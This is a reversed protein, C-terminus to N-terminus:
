MGRPRLAPRSEPAAQQAKHALLARQFLVAGEKGLANALRAPEPHNNESFESEQRPRWVFKAFTHDAARDELYVGASSYGTLRKIESATLRIELPVGLPIFTDMLEDLGPCSNEAASILIATRMRPNTLESVRARLQGLLPRACEHSAAGIWVSGGPRLGHSFLDDLVRNEAWEPAPNRDHAFQNPWFSMRLALHYFLESGEATSLDPRDAIIRNWLKENDTDFALQLGAIRGLNAAKAETGKTALPRTKEFFWEVAADYAQQTIGSYNGKGGRELDFYAYRLAQSASEFVVKPKHWNKEWIMQAIDVHGHHLAHGIGETALRSHPEGETLWRQITALDRSEIWQCVVTRSLGAKTSFINPAYTM